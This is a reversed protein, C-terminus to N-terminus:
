QLEASPNVPWAKQEPKAGEGEGNARSARVGQLARHSGCETYEAKNSRDDDDSSERVSV